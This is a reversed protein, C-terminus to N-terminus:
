WPNQPVMGVSHFPMVVEPDYQAAECGHYVQHQDFHRDLHRFKSLLENLFDYSKVAQRLSYDRISIYLECRFEPMFQVTHESCLEQHRSCEM